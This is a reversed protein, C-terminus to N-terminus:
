PTFVARYDSPRLSLLLVLGYQCGRQALIVHMKVDLHGDYLLVSSQEGGCNWHSIREECLSSVTWMSDKGGQVRTHTMFCCYEQYPPQTYAVPATVGPSSTSFVRHSKFYQSM